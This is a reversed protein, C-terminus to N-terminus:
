LFVNFVSMHIYMHVYIDINITWRELAGGATGCGWWVVSPSLPVTIYLFVCVCVYMCVHMCVCVSMCVYCVNCVCMCVSVCVYMCVHTRVYM